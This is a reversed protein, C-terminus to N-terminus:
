CFQYYWDRIEFYSTPKLFIYTVLMRDKDLNIVSHKIQNNFIYFKNPVYKLEVIDYINTEGPSLDLHHRSKAFITHCKYEELVMNLSCGAQWDQHWTYASNAPIKFITLFGGFREKFKSLIPCVSLIDAELKRTRNAVNMGPVWKWEVTSLFDNVIPLINTIDQNVPVFFDENMSIDLYYNGLLKLIFNKLM